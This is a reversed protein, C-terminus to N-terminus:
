DSAMGGVLDVVRALEVDPQRGKVTVDLTGLVMSSPKSWRAAGNSRGGASNSPRRMFKSLGTAAWSLLSSRPPM